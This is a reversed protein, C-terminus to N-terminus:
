QPLRKSTGYLLSFQNNGLHKKGGRLMDSHNVRQPYSPESPTWQDYLSWMVGINQTEEVLYRSPESHM